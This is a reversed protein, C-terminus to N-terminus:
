AADRRSLERSREVLGQLKEVLEVIAPDTHPMLVPRRQAVHFTAAALERAHIHMKGALELARDSM